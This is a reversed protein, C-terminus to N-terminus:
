SSTYSSQKILQNFEFFFEGFSKVIIQPFGKSLKKYPTPIDLYYVRELRSIFMQYIKWQDPLCIEIVERSRPNTKTEAICVLIGIFRGSGYIGDLVRQHAWVQIVRERTSTKVPLHLKSEGVGLDFIFDTPLTAKKDLNLVEIKNQPNIDLFRSFTHGILYEFYTGPTKQDGTKILDIACCFNQAITYFAKTLERASLKDYEKEKMIKFFRTISGDDDKFLSQNVARSIKGEREFAFYKKDTIKSLLNIRETKSLFLSCDDFIDKFYDCVEDSKFNKRIVKQLKSYIMLADIM